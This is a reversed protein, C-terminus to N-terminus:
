GAAAENGADANANRLALLMAEARNNLEDFSRAIATYDDRWLQLRNRLIIGADSRMANAMAQGTTEVQSGLRNMETTATASANIITTLMSENLGLEQATMSGGYGTIAM